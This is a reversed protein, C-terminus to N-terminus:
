KILMDAEKRGAALAEHFWGPRKGRGSWTQEANAPNRFKAAVPSASKKGRKGRGGFVDELSYGEQKIMAEIRERLASLTEKALEAQRVKAHEILENLQNHNFINLDIPM